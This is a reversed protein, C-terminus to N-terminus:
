YKRLQTFKLYPDQLILPLDLQDAHSEYYHYLKAIGVEYPTFLFNHGMETVLRSNDGTYERNYGENLVVVDSQYNGIENVIRAIRLLDISDTPTVNMTRYISKKRILQKVIALLDEIYLYDFIVNQNMTIAQRLINKVISNSIFKYAYDEYQGYLGFVRLCTIQDSKETFRAMVYKSFGYSDLPISEGLDRESVKHLSRQKNFEAGSGFYILQAASHLNEVLHFFMRLNNEAITSGNDETGTPRANGALACHVIVDFKENALFSRVMSEDTLDLDAHTVATVDFEGQLGEKINRGTFGGAGTILVRPTHM